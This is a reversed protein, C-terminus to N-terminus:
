PTIIITANCCPFKKENAPNSRKKKRSHCLHTCIMKKKKKSFETTEIKDYVYTSGCNLHLVHRSSNNSCRLFCLMRLASIQEPQWGPAPRRCHCQLWQPLLWWLFCIHRIEQMYTDANNPNPKSAKWICKFRMWYSQYQNNTGKYAAYHKLNWAV